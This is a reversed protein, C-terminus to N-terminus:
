RILRGIKWLAMKNTAFDFMYLLNKNFVLNNSQVGRLRSPFDVSPYSYYTLREGDSNLLLLENERAVFLFRSTVFLGVPSLDPEDDENCTPFRKDCRPEINECNRLLRFRRLTNGDAVYISSGHVALAGLGDYPLEDVKWSALQKGERSYVFLYLGSLLVMHENSVNIMTEERPDLDVYYQNKLHGDLSLKLIISQESGKSM